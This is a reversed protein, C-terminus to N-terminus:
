GSFSSRNCRFSLARCFRCIRLRITQSMQAQVMKKPANIMRTTLARINHHLKTTMAMNCEETDHILNSNYCKEKPTNSERLTRNNRICADTSSAGYLTNGKITCFIENIHSLHLGPCCLIYYLSLFFECLHYLYVKNLGLVTLCSSCIILKKAITVRRSGCSVTDFACVIRAPLFMLVLLIEVLSYVQM